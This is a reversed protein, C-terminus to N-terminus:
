INDVVDSNFQWKETLKIEFAVRYSILEQSNVFSERSPSHSIFFSSCKASWRVLWRILTCCSNLTPDNLELQIIITQM